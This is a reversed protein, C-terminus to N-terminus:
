FNINNLYNTLYEFYISKQNKKYARGESMGHNIFHNTADFNNFKNLDPHLNKYENPNFDSPVEKNTYRTFELKKIKIIPYNKNYLYDKLYINDFHINGQYGPISNYLVNISNSHIIHCKCEINIILEQFSLYKNIHEQYYYKIKLIGVKNYRRIFDPYHHNIENSSLLASMEITPDFLSKFDVLSRTILFSDNTLIINDYKEIDINLLVHLYKGYCVTSDNDKYTMNDIVNLYEYEKSNIYIIDDAIETLYNHNYKICKIKIDSSTHCAVICLTKSKNNEFYCPIFREIVFVILPYYNYGTLKMLNDKTLSGGYTSDIFSLPHEKLYPLLSNLYWNIFQKMLYPSCIFYNCVCEICDNFNFHHLLDNWINIFSPHHINAQSKDDLVYRDFNYFHFYKNPKYLQKEIINNVKDIDIKTHAKHSLTGVMEYNKWEGEINKMQSWFNNEFTYDQNELIIPKAWSYKKYVNIADNYTYENYCLIYIIVASITNKLIIKNKTNLENLKNINFVEIEKGNLLEKVKEILESYNEESIREIFHVRDAYIKELEQQGSKESIIHIDPSMVAENLRCTELCSSQDHHLNLFIKSKKILQTLKVGFIETVHLVNFGEMRLAQCINDKQDTKRGCFLIDIKKVLVSENASESFEIVPPLLHLVKEKCEEPYHLLNIESYDFTCKSNKVLSIINESLYLPNGIDLKELQYLFYKTAPLVNFHDPYTSGGYVQLFSQPCCIFLYRNPENYCNTIDKNTLYRIYVNVEINMERLLKALAEAINMIYVTAFLDIIEVQSHPDQIGKSLIVNKINYIKKADMKITVPM